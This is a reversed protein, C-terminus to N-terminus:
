WVQYRQFIIKEIYGIKCKLWIDNANQLLYLMAFNNVEFILNEQISM